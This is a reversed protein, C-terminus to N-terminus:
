QAGFSLLHTKFRVFVWESDNPARYGGRLRM